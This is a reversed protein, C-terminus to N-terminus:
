FIFSCSLCSKCLIVALSQQPTKAKSSLCPLQRSSVPAVLRPLMLM